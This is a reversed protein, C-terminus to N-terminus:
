ARLRDILAELEEDSYYHIVLKGGKRGHTLEVKTGLAQRLRNELAALDPDIQRGANSAAAPPSDGKALRRAAEETQRVSLGASRIRELLARQQAADPCILLARAHGESLEGAALAQRVESPLRILRLTNAVSSRHKGVRAAVEEQTLGHEDILQQYASAAELANLDQRQLNEVLALELQERPTTEKLLAPVTRLGALRAARWRREGAVLTYGGQRRTVILPQLVGHQRISEALEALSEPDARERPQRPNPSISDIEVQILGRDGPPFLADLGRGLGTRLPRSPGGRPTSM